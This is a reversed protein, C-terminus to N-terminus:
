LFYFRRIETPAKAPVVTDLWEAIHELLQDHLGTFYHDAGSMETQQYSTDANKKGALKRDNATRLVDSFDDSAYIDLVPIDLKALEEVIDYTPVLFIHRQMSIGAFGRVRSGNEVLFNVATTAGFSYGLLVIDAYGRKLLFQIASHIRTKAEDFTSGYRAISTQPALVPMQISLTSWGRGPLGKRLPSIVDPWDANGGMSHLVLVVRGSSGSDTERFLALFPKGTPGLWVVEDEAYSEILHFVLEDEYSGTEAVEAVSPSSFLMIILFIAHKM